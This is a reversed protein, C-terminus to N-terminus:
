GVAHNLTLVRLLNDTLIQPQQSMSFTPCVIFRAGSHLITVPGLPRYFSTSHLAIPRPFSIIAHAHWQVSLQKSARAVSLRIM